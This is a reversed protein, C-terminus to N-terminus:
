QQSYELGIQELFICLPIWFETLCRDLLKKHFIIGALFRESNETFGKIIFTQCPESHTESVTAINISLWDVSHLMVKWHDSLQNDVM